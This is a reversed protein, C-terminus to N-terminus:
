GQGRGSPSPVFPAAAGDPRCSPCVGQTRGAVPCADAARRRRVPEQRVAARFDAADRDVAVYDKMQLAAQVKGRAAQQFLEEGASSTALVADFQKVAEAPRNLKLLALGRGLRANPRWSSAALRDEFAAFSKLAQDYRGAAYQLAGLHFQAADALPSGPKGAVALFLREAEEAQNQKELARGLGFRCDDQMQGDPFRKLGDRFYGAAAAFDNNSLAIDGLYPLVYAILRDHPYKALFGELDPKAAAFEGALYAAEGSRFLAARAYKGAPERAAYEHFHQRADDLKGLQLLAEGLFFIGQNARRDNPYKGLFTQFEEVALKWQQRDYHGAAVAFQDDADDGRVATAPAIAVWVASTAVLTRCLATLM